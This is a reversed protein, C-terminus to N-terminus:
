YEVIFPSIYVFLCIHGSDQRFMLLTILYLCLAVRLTFYLRSYSHSYMSILFSGGQMEGSLICMCVHVCVYMCVYMCACM